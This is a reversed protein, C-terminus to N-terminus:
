ETSKKVVKKKIIKKKVPEPAKVEIAAAVEEKIDAEEDSDEVETSTPEDDEEEIDDDLAASQKIMKEKDDTSLQIQCVGRMTAKPKVVGQFLRWTIGFKGNAFWLGGCQIVLAVHSGKAILEKPTVTGGEPDPFIARQDVDYLETKWEGEWFPIKVKLIPARTLDPELTNKDKPYKLMPTWLADIADESMKAKGFWEKANAIADTKIKTEFDIMNNMFDTTDQTAYETNPFQLSMEYRENGEYDSVGWTLMLPTSIYTASNASANLVGVSKGGRADVKPKSYKIDSAPTFAAGSLITKSSM